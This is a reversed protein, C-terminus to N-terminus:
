GQNFVRSIVGAKAKAEAARNADDLRAGLQVKDAELQITDAQAWAM